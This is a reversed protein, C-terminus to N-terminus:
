LNKLFFTSDTSLLLWTIHLPVTEYHPLISRSTHQCTRTDASLFNERPVFPNKQTQPLSQASFLCSIAEDGPPLPQRISSLLFLLVFITLIQKLLISSFYNPFQLTPLFLKLLSLFYFYTQCNEWVCVCLHACTCVRVGACAHAWM